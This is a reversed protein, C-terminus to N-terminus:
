TKSVPPKRKRGRAVHLGIHQCMPPERYTNQAAAGIVGGVALILPWVHLHALKRIVAAGLTFDDWGQAVGASVTHFFTM